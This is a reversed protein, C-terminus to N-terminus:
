LHPRRNAVHLVILQALPIQLDFIQIQVEVHLGILQALLVLLDFTPVDM